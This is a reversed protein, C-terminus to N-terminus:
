GTILDNRSSDSRATFKEANTEGNICFNHDFGIEGPVDNIVDGLLVPARLDFVTGEVRSIEGPIKFFSFKLWFLYAHVHIM